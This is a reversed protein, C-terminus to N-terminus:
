EQKEKTNEKKWRFFDAPDDPAGLFRWIAMQRAAICESDIARVHNIREILAHLYQIESKLKEIEQSYPM